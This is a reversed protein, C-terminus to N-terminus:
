RGFPSNADHYSSGSLTSRDFPSAGSSTPTSGPMGNSNGSGTRAGGHLYNDISSSSEHSWTAKDVAGDVAARSPEDRSWRGHLGFHTEYPVKVDFYEGTVRDYARVTKYDGAGHAGTCGVVLLPVICMLWPTTTRIASRM